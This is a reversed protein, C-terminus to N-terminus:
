ADEEYDDDENDVFQAEDEDAYDAQTAIHHEDSQNAASGLLPEDKDGVEGQLKKNHKRQEYISFWNKRGRRMYLAVAIVAIVALLILLLAIGAAVGLAIWLGLLNPPAAAPPNLVVNAQDLQRSQPPAVTPKLFNEAAAAIVANNKCVRKVRAKDCVECPPIIYSDLVPVSPAKPAECTCSINCGRPDGVNTAYYTEGAGCDLTCAFPECPKMEYNCSVCDNADRVVLPTYGEKGCNNDGPCMIPEDVCQIPCNDADTIVSSRYGPKKPCDPAPDCKVVKTNGTICGKEDFVPNYTVRTTNDPLPQNRCVDVKHCNVVCNKENYEYVNKKGAEPICAPAEPCKQDPYICGVVCGNVDRDLILQAGDVKACTLDSCKWPKPTPAPGCVCKSCKRSDSDDEVWVTPQNDPCSTPCFSFTCPLEQSRCEPCGLPNFEKTVSVGVPADPCTVTPCVLAPEPTTTPAATTTPKCACATTCNRKDFSLDVGNLCDAPCTVLPCPIMQPPTCGKPCGNDGLIVSITYGEEPTPCGEFDRCKYIIPIQLPEPALIIDTVANRIAEGEQPTLPYAPCDLGNNLFADYEAQSITWPIAPDGAM